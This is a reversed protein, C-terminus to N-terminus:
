PRAPTASAASAPVVRPNYSEPADRWAAVLVFGVWTGDASSGRSRTNDDTSTRGRRLKAPAEILAVDRLRAESQLAQVFAQADTDARAQMTLRVKAPARPTSEINGHPEIRVLEVRSSTHSQIAGLLRSWPLAKSGALARTQGLQLREAAAAADSQGAIGTPEAGVQSAAKAFTAAAQPVASIEVASAPRPLELAPSHVAPTDSRSRWLLNLVAILTVMALALMTYGAWPRTPPAMFDLRHLRKM